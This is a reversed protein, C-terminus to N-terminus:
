KAFGDVIWAVAFCPAAIIAAVLVGVVVGDWDLNKNGLLITASALIILWGIGRLVKAIRSVGESKSM